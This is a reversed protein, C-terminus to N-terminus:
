WVHKFAGVGTRPERLFRGRRILLRCTADDLAKSGSSKLVICDVARADSFHFRVVVEGHEGTANDDDTILQDSNTVSRAGVISFGFVEPHEDRFKIAAARCAVDCPPAPPAVTMALLIGIM